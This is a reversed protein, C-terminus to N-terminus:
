GEFIAPPCNVGNARTYLDEACSVRNPLPHQPPYDRCLDYFLHFHHDVLDNAHSLVDPSDPSILDLAPVNGAEIVINSNSADIKLFRKPQSDFRFDTSTVYYVGDPLDVVVEEVYQDVAANQLVRPKFELTAQGPKKVGHVHGNPVDLWAAIREYAPGFGSTVAPDIKAENVVDRMKVIRDSDVSYVPLNATAPEITISEQRLLYVLSMPSSAVRLFTAPRIPPLDEPLSTVNGDQSYLLYALHPPIIKGHVIKGEVVNPM